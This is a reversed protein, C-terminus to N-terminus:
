CVVAVHGLRSLVFVYFIAEFLDSISEYNWGAASAAWISEGFQFKQLCHVDIEAFIGCLPCVEEVEM